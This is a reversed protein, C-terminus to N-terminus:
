TPVPSEDTTAGPEERGKRLVEIRRGRFRFRWGRETLEELLYHRTRAGSNGMAVTKRLLDLLDSGSAGFLMIGLAGDRDPDAGENVAQISCRLVEPWYRTGHLLMANWHRMEKKEENPDGGDRLYPSPGHFTHLLKIVAAPNDAFLELDVNGKPTGPGSVHLRSGYRQGHEELERLVAESVVSQIPGGLPDITGMALLEATAELRRDREHSTAADFLAERAKKALERPGHEVLWRAAYVWAHSHKSQTLDWLAQLGMDRLSPQSRSSLVQASWLNLRQDDERDAFLIIALFVTPWPSDPEKEAKGIIRWALWFHHRSSPNLLNNVLVPAAIPALSTELLSVLANVARDRNEFAFSEDQALSILM